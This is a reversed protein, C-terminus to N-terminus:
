PKKVVIGHALQNVIGLIGKGCGMVFAERVTQLGVTGILKHQLLLKQCVKAVVFLRKLVYAPIYHIDDAAMVAGIAPIRILQRSVAIVRDQDGTQHYAHKQGLSCESIVLMGFDM